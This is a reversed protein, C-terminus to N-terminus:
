KFPMEEKYTLFLANQAMPVFLDGGLRKGANQLALISIIQVTVDNWELPQPSRLTKEAQSSLGALPSIAALCVIHM